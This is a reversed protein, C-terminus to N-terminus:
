LLWLPQEYHEVAWPTKFKIFDAANQKAEYDFYTYNPKPLSPTTQTGAWESQSSHDPDNPM